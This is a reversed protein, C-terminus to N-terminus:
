GCTGTGGDCPLHVHCTHDLTLSRDSITSRVPMKQAVTQLVTQGISDSWQRDQRHCQHITALLNSPNPHWKTHFYAEAWAVSNSPSWSGWGFFPSLGALNKAWTQQPVIAPYILVGSPVSTPRLGRWTTNSPSLLDEGFPCLLWGSKPGHRNHGVAPHIM